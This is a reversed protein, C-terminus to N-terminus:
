RRRRRAGARTPWRSAPWTSSPRSARAAGRGAGRVTHDWAHCEAPFPLRRRAAAVDRVLCVLTDGREVLRKGLERGILGTAGTMLIRMCHVGDRPHLNSRRAHATGRSACSCCGGSRRPSPAGPRPCRGSWRRARRTARRAKSTPSCSSSTPATATPRRSCRRSTPAAAATHLAIGRLDVAARSRLARRAARTDDGISSCSDRRRSGGRSRPEIERAFRQWCRTTSRARSTSWWRWGRCAALAAHHRAGVAHAPAGAHPGPQRPLLAVPRSWSLALGRRWAARWNRAAAGAGVAHAIRPLDALLARLMSYRATAPTPACCANAGTARSARGGGRARTARGRRAAPRRAANRRALARARAARPGDTRPASGHAASAAGRRASPKARRGGPQAGGREADREGQGAPAHAADGRQRPSRAPVATTSRATCGSSTGRWCRRTAAPTSAWCRPAAATELHVAGPPLELWASIRWRRQQRHRRRVPQVAAADVDGVVASCRRCYRQAHRLAIHLVAHAVWGAQVRCRCSSRLRRQTSSTHGDTTVPARRRRRRRRGPRPAAGVAGPRRSAPAYEVLRQVAPVARHWRHAPSPPTM